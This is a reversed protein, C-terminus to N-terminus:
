AQLAAAKDASTSAIKVNAAGVVMPRVNASVHTQVFGDICFLACLSQGNRAWDQALEHRLSLTGASSTEGLQGSNRWKEAL